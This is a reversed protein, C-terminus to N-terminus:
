GTKPATLVQLLQQLEEELQQKDDAEIEYGAQQDAEQHTQASALLERKPGHRRFM